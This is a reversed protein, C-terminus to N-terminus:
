RRPRFEIRITDDGTEPTVSQFLNSLGVDITYCRQDGSPGCTKTVDIASQIDASGGDNKEACAVTNGSNDTLCVSIFDEESVFPTRLGLYRMPAQVTLVDTAGANHDSDVCTTGVVRSVSEFVTDTYQGTETQSTITEVVPTGFQDRGHIAVSACTLTGGGGDILDVYLKQPWAFTAISSTQILPGPTTGDSLAQASVVGALGISTTTGPGFTGISVTVARTRVDPSLDKWHLYGGAANAFPTWIAIAVMMLAVALCVLAGGLRATMKKTTM